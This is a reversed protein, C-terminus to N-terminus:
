GAREGSAARRVVEALDAPTDVDRFSDLAPDLARLDEAAVRLVTRPQTRDIDAVLDRFGARGRALQAAIAPLLDVSIVSLLPQPHGGVVPLVWRANGDAARDLLARVVGPAVLPVDCSCLVALRPPGAVRLAHALGDRIAALPGAGPESDRVIEVPAALAPLNSGPAAVVIVRPVEAELTTCVRDLFSRGGAALAGKGGPAALGGLRRGSGGAPVIAVADSRM